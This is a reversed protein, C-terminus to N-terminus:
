RVQRAGVHAFERGRAQRARAANPAHMSAGSRKTERRWKAHRRLRGAPSSWGGAEQVELINAGRSLLIAAFAHRLNHPKRYRVGSKLLARKWRTQWTVSYGLAVLRDEPDTSLLKM